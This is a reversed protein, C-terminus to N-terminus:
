PADGAALCEHGIGPVLATHWQDPDFPVTQGIGPHVPSDPEARLLERVERQLKRYKRAHKRNRAAKSEGRVLACAIPLTLSVVSEPAEGFLAPITTCLHDGLAFALSEACRQELPTM